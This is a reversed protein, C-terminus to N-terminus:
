ECLAYTSPRLASRVSPPYSFTCRYHNYRALINSLKKVGVKDVGDRRISALTNNRGFIRSMRDM